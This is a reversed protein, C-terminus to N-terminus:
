APETNTNADAHRKQPEQRVISAILNSPAGYVTQMYEDDGAGEGVSGVGAKLVEVTRGTSDLSDSDDSSTPQWEPSLPKRKYRILKQDSKPPRIRIGFPVRSFRRVNESTQQTETSTVVSINPSSPKQAQPGIPSEVIKRETNNITKLLNTKFLKSSLKSSVPSVSSFKKKQVAPTLKKTNVEKQPSNDSAKRKSQGANRVLEEPSNFLAMRKFTFHTLNVNSNNQKNLYNAIDVMSRLKKGNPPFYYVDCLSRQKSSTDQTNRFVIERKWGYKFPTRLHEIDNKDLVSEPALSKPTKKTKSTKSTQSSTSSSPTSSKAQNDGSLSCVAVSKGENPPPVSTIQTDSQMKKSFAEKVLNDSQIETPCTRYPVNVNTHGDESSSEDIIVLASDTDEDSVDNEVLVSTPTSIKIPTNQANFSTDQTTIPTNLPDLSIVSTSNEKNVDGSPSGKDQKNTDSSNMTEVINKESSEVDAEM